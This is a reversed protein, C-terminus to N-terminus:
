CWDTIKKSMAEELIEKSEDGQIIEDGIEEPEVVLDYETTLTPLFLSSVIYLSHLAFCVHATLHLSKSWPAWTWYYPWGPFVATTAIPEVSKDEVSGKMADAPVGGNCEQKHVTWHSKQHNKSCYHISKCRSCSNPGRCRNHIWFYIGVDHFYHLCSSYGDILKQGAWVTWIFCDTWVRLSRVADAIAVLRVHRYAMREELM